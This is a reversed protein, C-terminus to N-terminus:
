CLMKVERKRLSCTARSSGVRLDEDDETNRESQKKRAFKFM